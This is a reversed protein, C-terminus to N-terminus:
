WLSTEGLRGAIFNVLLLLICNIVSNFMEVATSFSFDSKILGVKYVYTSIVESASLNTDNQLLYVKEFGVSLLSGCQMILLIVITPVLVPLNIHWIRQWKNAGDIRAAELLASDVGALAAFYIISSWGTEQWIGSLIYIWKFGSASQLYNFSTLGLASRIHNFLGTTPNLFIILMGCMVVTSIFHPALSITQILKQYKTHLIENLLLAFLIPVPFGLLLSLGTITLTNRIVTGFYYSRFFRIFHALGVWESGFFGDAAKYNRFAIQIGYLPVYKFIIFYAVAPLVFLYLQWNKLIRKGLPAKAAASISRTM